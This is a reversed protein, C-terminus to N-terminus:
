NSLGAAISATVRAAAQSTGSKVGWEGGPLTSLINVGPATTSVATGGNSWATIKGQSNVAGVSVVGPYAAPYAPAAAGSNGAAAVVVIRKEIALAVAKELDESTEKVALSINIIRAGNEVAWIIGKAITEPSTIGNDGAVKINLIEVNGANSAIIGAIHTGHGQVDTETRSDTLNISATVRGNLATHTADIGTDLVAVKVAAAPAAAQVTAAASLTLGLVIVAVLVLNRTARKIAKLEKM